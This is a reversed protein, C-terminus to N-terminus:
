SQHTLYFSKAHEEKTASEIVCPNGEIQKCNIVISIYNTKTQKWANDQPLPVQLQTVGHSSVFLNTKSQAHM